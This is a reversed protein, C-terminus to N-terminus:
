SGRSLVPGGPLLTAPIPNSGIDYPTHFWAPVLSWDMRRPLSWPSLQVGVGSPVLNQAERTLTELSGSEVIM